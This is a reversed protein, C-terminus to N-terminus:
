GDETGCLQATNVKALEVVVRAIDALSGVKTKRFRKWFVLGSLVKHPWRCPILTNYRQPPWM